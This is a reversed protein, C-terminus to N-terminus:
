SHHARQHPGTKPGVTSMVLLKMIQPRRLPCRRSKVPVRITNAVVELRAGRLNTLTGNKSDRYRNLGPLGLVYVDRSQVGNMWAIAVKNDQSETTLKGLGDM